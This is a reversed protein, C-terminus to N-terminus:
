PLPALRRSVLDSATAPTGTRRTVLLGQGDLGLAILSDRHLDSFTTSARCPMAKVCRVVRTEIENGQGDVQTYSILATGRPDVALRTPYYYNGLAPTILRPPLWTGRATMRQLYLQHSFDDKSMSEGYVIVAGGSRTIASLPFEGNGFANSPQASLVHRPGFGGGVHRVRLVNHLGDTQYEGWSLLVDGDHNASFGYRGYDQLSIGAPPGVRHPTGWSGNPRVDLVYVGRSRRVAATLAKNDPTEQFVAVHVSGHRDVFVGTPHSDVLPHQATMRWPEGPFRVAAEAGYGEGRTWALAFTGNEHRVSQLSFITPLTPIGVRHRPGWRGNAAMDKYFIRVRGAGVTWLVTARGDGWTMLRPAELYSVAPATLAVPANWNRRGAPRTAVFLQSGSQYLVIERGRSTFGAGSAASSGGTGVDEVITVPPGWDDTAAAAITAPVAGVPAALVSTALALVAAPALLGTAM